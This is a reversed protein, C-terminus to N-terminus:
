RAMRWTQFPRLLMLTPFANILEANPTSDGGDGAVPAAVTATFTTLETATKENMLFPKLLDLTTNVLPLGLIKKYLEALDLSKSVPSPDAGEYAALNCKLADVYDIAM